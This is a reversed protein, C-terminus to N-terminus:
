ETGYAKWYNCCGPVSTTKLFWTSCRLTPPQKMHWHTGTAVLNKQSGTTESPLCRWHSAIVAIVPSQKRMNEGHAFTPVYSSLAGLWECLGALVKVTYASGIPLADKKCLDWRWASKVLGKSSVCENPNYGQIRCPYEIVPCHMCRPRQLCIAASKATTKCQKMCLKMGSIYPDNQQQFNDCLLFLNPSLLIMQAM